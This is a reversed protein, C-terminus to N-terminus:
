DARVAEQLRGPSRGYIREFASSCFVEAQAGAMAIGLDKDVLLAHSAYDPLFSMQHSALLVSMAAPERLCLQSLLAFVAAENMPDMASTPEDLVLLEPDSVLARAILVRQKQGESLASFPERALAVADTLELARGVRAREARTTWPRLFRWGTDLGGGVFDFVRAPVSLDFHSRQPVYAIRLAARRAVRGYVAPQLGLLTRMLSSKGGGNRGILAWCDGPALDFDIGPLIGHDHYGVVLKEAALLRERASM